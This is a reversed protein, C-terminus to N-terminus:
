QRSLTQTNYMDCTGIEHKNTDTLKPYQIERHDARNSSKFRKGVTTYEKAQHASLYYKKSLLHNTRRQASLRMM